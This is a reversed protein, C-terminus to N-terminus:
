GTKEVENNVMRGVNQIIFPIKEDQPWNDEKRIQLKEKVGGLL